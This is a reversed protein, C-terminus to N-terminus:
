HKPKSFLREMWNRCRLAGPRASAPLGARSRSLPSKAGSGKIHDRLRNSDCAADAMLTQGPGITGKIGDSSRGDHAQRVTLKFPMFLGHSDNVALAETM